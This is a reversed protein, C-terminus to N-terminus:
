SLRTSAFTKTVELGISDRVTASGIRLNGAGSFASLGAGASSQFEILNGTQTASNAKAIIGKNADAGTNITQPGITFVNAVQLLAATGTVPVTLTFGGTAITGGGSINGILSGNITSNGSIALTSASWGFTTAGTAQLVQGATRGSTTHLAGAIDHAAPTVGSITVNAAATVLGKGNVTVQAVQTASGFTGVNANVTALTATVAGPGTASVDGSLDTIADDTSSQAAPLSLLRTMDYIPDNTGFRESM